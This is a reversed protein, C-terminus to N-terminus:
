RGKKGEASKTLSTSNAVAKISIENLIVWNNSPTLSRLRLESVLGISASASSNLTLAAEGTAHNFHALVLYGADTRPFGGPERNPLDDLVAGEKQQNQHDVPLVEVTTNFFKDGPHEVNGSKFLFSRVRIPPPFKFLVFDNQKPTLGWFFTEGKYARELFHKLYPKLSTSVEAHANDHHPRHLQNKPFDKDKLKQSKSLPTPIFFFIQSSKDVIKKRCVNKYNYM